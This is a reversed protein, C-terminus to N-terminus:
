YPRTPESIHILSLNSVPYEFEDEEETPHICTEQGSCYVRFADQSSGETPDIWYDGPVFSTGQCNFVDQCSLAPNDRTGMPSILANLKKLLVDIVGNSEFNTPIEIKTLDDM